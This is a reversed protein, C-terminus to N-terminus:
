KTRPKVKSTKKRTTVALDEMLKNVDNKKAKGKAIKSVTKARKAVDKVAAAGPVGMDAAVSLMPGTIATARKFAKKAKKFFAGSANSSSPYFEDVANQANILNELVRFDAAGPSKKAFARYPSNAGIFCQTILTRELLLTASSKLGTFVSMNMKVNTAYVRCSDPRFSMANTGPASTTSSLSVGNLTILAFTCSGWSPLAGLTIPPSLFIHDGDFGCSVTNDCWNVRCASFIGDSARGVRNNNTATLASTEGPPIIQPQVNTTQYYAVASTTNCFVRANISNFGLNDWGGSIVSGQQDIKATQDIVEYNAGVVRAFGNLIDTGFDLRVTKLPTVPGLISTSTTPFPSTNPAMIYACLGGIELSIALGAGTWGAYATTNGLLAFDGNANGQAIAYWATASTTAGVCEIPWQVIYVDYTSYSTIGTFSLTTALKQRALTSLGQLGDVPAGYNSTDPNALAADVFNDVDETSPALRADEISSSSSSSSNSTSAVPTIRWL